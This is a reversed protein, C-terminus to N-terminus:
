QPSRPLLWTSSTRGEGRRPLPTPLHPALRRPPHTSTRPPMLGTAGVGRGRLPSPLFGVAIAKAACDEIVPCLFHNGEQEGDRNALQSCVARYQALLGQGCEDTRFPAARPRLRFGPFTALDRKRRRHGSESLVGCRKPREPVIVLTARGFTRRHAHLEQCRWARRREEPHAVGATVFDEDIRGFARVVHPCPM